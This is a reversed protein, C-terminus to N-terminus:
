VMIGVSNIEHILGTNNHCLIIGKFNYRLVYENNM